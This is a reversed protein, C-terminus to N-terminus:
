FRLALGVGKMDGVLPILEIDQHHEYLRLLNTPQTLLNLEGVAIGVGGSILATQWHHFGAGLILTVIANVAVNGVSGVWSKGIGEEKAVHALKECRHPGTLPVIFRLPLLYFSLTGVGASIAGVTFDIRQSPNQVAAAAGFQAITAAGYITGWSISWIRLGQLENDIASQLEADDECSEARVTSACLVVAALALWRV